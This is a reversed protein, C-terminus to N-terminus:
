KDLQEIAFQRHMYVTPNKAALINLAYDLANQESLMTAMPVNSPLRLSSWVDNPFDRFSAPVAIVPWSTRAALIPGLGNSMGVKVVIVGGDPYDRLLEELKDLCAQPSKHGSLTVHQTEIGLLNGILPYEDNESARWLVIAQKPLRFREVLNAVFGYKKEVENLDAGDRFLQKSLEQWAADRLRWSDNDIVDAVVLSNNDTTIGFEIKLDVLRYGLTNWAGELVLFVKRLINEMEKMMSTGAVADCRLTRELNASNDWTPKKSHFLKWTSDFPNPIFPDEEGKIPDLGETLIEGDRTLKGCTTKLFFEAVLRHFRHPPQIDALEPHRKLYSGVALRRAVVELPIMDCRNVLFETPSLQQQFAVPIGAEHLLEFVRCTTSTAYSAKAIFQKTLSPDDFATIDPKSEIIGLHDSNKVQFLRKTKGEAILVDKQIEM